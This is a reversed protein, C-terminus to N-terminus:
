PAAWVKRFEPDSYLQALLRAYMETYQNIAESYAAFQASSLLATQELHAELHV